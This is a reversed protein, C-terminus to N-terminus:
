SNTSMKFNKFLNKVREKDITNTIELFYNLQWAQTERAQNNKSVDDWPPYVRFGRKGDYNNDSLIGHDYLIKKPFIFQGLKNNKRTIIIYLDFNDKINYPEAQSSHSNRKWLTVFQGKKTPTIKAIRLKAYCANLKLSCGAYKASEKELILDGINCKIKCKDYVLEKIIRIDSYIGTLDNWTTM